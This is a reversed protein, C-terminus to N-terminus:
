KLNRILSCSLVKVLCDIFKLYKIIIKNKWAQRGKKWIPEILNNKIIRRKRQCDKGGKREKKSNRKAKNWEAV